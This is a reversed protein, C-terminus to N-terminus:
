EALLAGIISILYIASIQALGIWPSSSLYPDLLTPAPKGTPAIYRDIALKTLLPGVIQFLSSFFLFILSILVVRKYPLMYVLLRRMLRGDYAKGLVEEEM